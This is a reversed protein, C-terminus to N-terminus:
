SPPQWSAETFVIDDYQNNRQSESGVQKRAFQQRNKDIWDLLCDEHSILTCQCPKVWRGDSDEDTGFCIYCRNPEQYSATAASISTPQSSTSTAVSRSRASISELEKVFATSTSSSESMPSSSSALSPTLKSMERHKKIDHESGNGGNGGNSANSTNNAHSGQTTTGNAHSTSQMSALGTATHVSSSPTTPEMQRKLQIRPDQETKNELFTIHHALTDRKDAHSPSLPQIHKTTQSQRAKTQHRFPLLLFLSRPQFKFNPGHSSAGYHLRAEDAFM